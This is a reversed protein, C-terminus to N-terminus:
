VRSHANEFNRKDNSESYFYILLEVFSILESWIVSANNTSTLYCETLIERVSKENPYFLDARKIEIFTLVAQNYALSKIEFFFKQM